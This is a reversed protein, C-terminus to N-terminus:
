EWGELPPGQDYKKKTMLREKQRKLILVAILYAISDDSHTNFVNNLQDESIDLRYLYSFLLGNDRDMLHAVRAAIALLLEEESITSESPDLELERQIKEKAQSLIPNLM